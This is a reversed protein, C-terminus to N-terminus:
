MLAKRAGGPRGLEVVRQHALKGVDGIDVHALGDGLHLAHESLHDSRDLEQKGEGQGGAQHHQQRGDGGRTALTLALKGHQAGHPGTRRRSRCTCRMSSSPTPRSAPVSAETTATTTPQASARYAKSNAQVAEGQTGSAPLRAPATSASIAPQHPRRLTNRV